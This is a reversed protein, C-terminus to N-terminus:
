PCPRLGLTVIALTHIQDENASIINGVLLLESIDKRLLSSRLNEKKYKRKDGLM